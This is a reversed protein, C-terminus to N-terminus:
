ALLPGSVLNKSKELLIEDLIDVTDGDISGIINNKSDNSIRWFFQYVYKLINITCLNTLM